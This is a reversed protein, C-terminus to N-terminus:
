CQRFWGQVNSGIQKCTQEIEVLDAELLKSAKM